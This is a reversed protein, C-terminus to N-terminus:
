TRSFNAGTLAELRAQRRGWTGDALLFYGEGPKLGSPRRVDIVHPSGDAPLPLQTRLWAVTEADTTRLIFKTPTNASIVDIATQAAANSGLAHKLSAISQTAMVVIARYARCRDLFAQEGTEADNTIFRQAEDIIVGVPRELDQRAFVAEFFKQKVAMGALRHGEKHDPCFLIVKGAEVLSAIDTHQRAPVPLIDLDIFQAIDPNALAAVLPKASLVTYFWQQLLEDDGTYGEMVSSASSNLGVLKCLKRLVADAEKLKNPSLCSFTLVDRLQCWFGSGKGQPLNLEKAMVSILRHGGTREAFDTELQLFDLITANGLHKWYTNGGDPTDAPAFSRLKQLRDSPSLPCDEEFFRMPPCEGIVVLRDDNARDALAQRVKVELERKPDIM